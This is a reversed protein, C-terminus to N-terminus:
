FSSLGSAIVYLFLFVGRLSNKTELSRFGALCRRPLSRYPVDPYVPSVVEIQILYLFVFGGLKAREHMMETRATIAMNSAVDTTV